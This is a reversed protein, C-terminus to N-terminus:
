LFIILPLFYFIFMSLTIFMYYPYILFYISFISLTYFITLVVDVFVSLVCLFGYCSAMTM